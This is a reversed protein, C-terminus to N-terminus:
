WQHIKLLYSKWALSTEFAIDVAAESCPDIEELM